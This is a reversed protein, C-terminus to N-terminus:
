SSSWVLPEPAVEPGKQVFPVEDRLLPHKLAHLLAGFAPWEHRGDQLQGRV